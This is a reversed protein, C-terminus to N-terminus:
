GSFDAYTQRNSDYAGVTIAKSATSPITLTTYPIPNLFRTNTGLSAEVPLWMNYAGLVSKVSTIRVTWIGSQIYMDEPVFQVYVEQYISYPKPTGYYVMLRTRDSSINYKMVENADTFIGTSEGTPSILEIEFIDAYSKWIQM